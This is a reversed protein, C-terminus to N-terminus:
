ASSLPLREGSTHQSLQGQIDFVPPSVAHVKSHAQAAQSQLPSPPVHWAWGLSQRMDGPRSCRVALQSRIPGAIVGPSCKM